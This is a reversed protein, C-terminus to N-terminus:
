QAVARVRFFRNSYTNGYTGPLCSTWNVLDASSELIVNVPGTADTPIVVSNIPVNPQSSPTVVQFTFTSELGIQAVFEINTLGSFSAASTFEHFTNTFTLPISFYSGAGVYNGGGGSPWLKITAPLSTGNRCNLFTVIQNTNLAYDHPASANSDVKITVFKTQAQLTISFFFVSVFVCVFTKQMNDCEGTAKLTTPM